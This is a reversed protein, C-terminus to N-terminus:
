STCSFLPRALRNSFTWLKTTVHWVYSFLASNVTNLSRSSLCFKKKVLKVSHSETWQITSWAIKCSGRAEVQHAIHVSPARKRRCCLSWHATCKWLKLSIPSKIFQINMCIKVNTWSCFIEVTFIYRENPCWLFIQQM